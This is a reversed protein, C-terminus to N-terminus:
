RRASARPARRVRATPRAASSRGLWIVVARGSDRRSRARVAAPALRDDRPERGVPGREEGLRTREVEGISVAPGHASLSSWSRWACSGSVVRMQSEAPMKAGASDTASHAALADRLDDRSTNGGRRHRRERSGRMLQDSGQLSGLGANLSQPDGPRARGSGTTDERCERFRPVGPPPEAPVDSSDIDGPAESTALLM